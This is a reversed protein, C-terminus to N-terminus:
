HNAQLNQLPIEPNNMPENEDVGGLGPDNPNVDNGGPNTHTAQQFQLRWREAVASPVVNLNHEICLGKHVHDNTLPTLIPGLKNHTKRSCHVCVGKRRAREEREHQTLVNGNKGFRDASNGGM